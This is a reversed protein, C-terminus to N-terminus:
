EPDKPLRTIAFALPVAAIATLLVLAATSGNWDSPPGIRVLSAALVLAGGVAHDRTPIRWLLVGVVLAFGVAAMAVLSKWTWPDPVVVFFAVLNLSTLTAFALLAIAAATAIRKQAALDTVVAQTL